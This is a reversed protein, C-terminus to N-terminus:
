RVTGPLEHGKGSEGSSDVRRVILRRLLVEDVRGRFRVKGDITVVPVCCDYQERLRPDSDIDVLRPSLGYRRLVEHAHRCLHCGRRSYLVVDPQQISLAGGQSKQFALVTQRLRGRSAPGRMNLRAAIEAPWGAGGTGSM